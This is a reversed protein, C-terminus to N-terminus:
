QFYGRMFNMYEEDDKSSYRTKVFGRADNGIWYRLREKKAVNGEAYGDQVAELVKKAVDESSISVGGIMKKYSETTNAMFEDYDKLEGQPMESWTRNLFSTASVGGHPIVSKVFINQSLLEYSLSETFGELAFKSSTYMTSIPLGWFGAGSSVNVIGHVPTGSKSARFHPLILRTVDM